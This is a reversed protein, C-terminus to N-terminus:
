ASLTVAFQPADLQFGRQHHDSRTSDGGRKTLIRDHKSGRLQLLQSLM